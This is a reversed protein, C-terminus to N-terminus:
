SFACVCVIGPDKGTLHSCFSVKKQVLYGLKLYLLCMFINSNRVRDPSFFTLLSVLLALSSSLNMQIYRFKVNYIDSCLWNKGDTFCLSSQSLSASVVCSLPSGGEELCWVCGKAQHGLAHTWLEALMSLRSTEGRALQSKMPHYSYSAFLNIFCFSCVGGELPTMSLCSKKHTVDQTELMITWLGWLEFVGAEM